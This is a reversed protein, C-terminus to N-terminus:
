PLLSIDPPMSSALSHNEMPKSLQSGQVLESPEWRPLFLLSPSVMGNYFMWDEKIPQTEPATYRPEMFIRTRIYSPQKNLCQTSNTLPLRLQNIPLQLYM